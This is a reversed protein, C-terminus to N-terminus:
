TTEFNLTFTMGKRSRSAMERLDTMSTYYCRVKSGGGYTLYFQKGFIQQYCLALYGEIVDYTDGVVLCRVAIDRSRSKYTQEKFSAPQLLTDYVEQVQIGLKSFDVDGVLVRSLPLSKTATDSTLRPLYGKLRCRVTVEGAKVGSLYLPRGIHRYSEITIQDIHYGDGGHHMDSPLVRLYHSATLERFYTLREIFERRTQGIVLFRLNIYANGQSISKVDVELGDEEQWDNVEEGVTPPLTLLEIVGGRSFYIGKHSLEVVEEGSEQPRAIYSKRIEM